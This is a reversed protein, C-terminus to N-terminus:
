AVNATGLDELLVQLGYSMQRENKLLIRLYEDSCGCRRAVEARTGVNKIATEILAEALEPRHQTRADIHRHTM